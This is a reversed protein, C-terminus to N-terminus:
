SSMNPPIAYNGAFGDHIKYLEEQCENKLRTFHIRYPTRQGSTAMPTELTEHYGANYAPTRTKRRMANQKANKIGGSNEPQNKHVIECPNM